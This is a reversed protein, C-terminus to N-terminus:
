PRHLWFQYMGNFSGPNAQEFRDWGELSLARGDAPNFALYRQKLADDCVMGLFQLGLQDIAAAIRPLTFRHEQVHFVLDRLTSSTYFDRDRVVARAPHDDPLGIIFQRCASLGESTPEFGQEAILERAAVVHRRALESYLAIKMYGGRRLLDTLVRWGAMPDALHHLVGDCAILDFQRDLSGLELIDAQRFQLNRLGLEDAKRRAYGLSTLSLDVALVSCDAYLAALTAPQCGTGCGAVLLEPAAPLTGDSVQNPAIEQNLHRGFPQPRGRYFGLWRPYPHEEYQQRVAQSVADRIEGVVPIDAALARERAPEQLQIRVLTQLQRDRVGALRKVMSPEPALVALPRYCALVALQLTLGDPGQALRSKVGDFLETVQAQEDPTSPWLYENWFCQQAAAHILPLWAGLGSAAGDSMLRGLWRRRLRVLLRELPLHTLITRALFAHLLPRQLLAGLTPQHALGALSFDSDATALAESLCEENAGGLLLSQVGLSLDQPELDERQLAAALFEDYREGVVEPDLLRGRLLLATNQYIEAREPALRWAEWYAGLASALQGTQRHLNGLAFWAPAHGADRQVAQELTALARPLDGAERYAGGLATLAEVAGPTQQVVTQLESIAEARHGLGLLVTGLNHRARTLEPKLGLARRLADVAEASRGQAQLASGLNGYGEAFGADQALAQRFCAEAEAARGLELLINGLNNHAAVFGPRIQLAKRILRIGKEPNGTQHAILGALHNADAHEPDRALVKRYLQEAPRLEGRQHHQLAQRMLDGAGGKTQQRGM